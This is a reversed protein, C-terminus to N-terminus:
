LAVFTTLRTQITQRHMLLTERLSAAASNGWFAWKIRSSRNQMHYKNLFDQLDVRCEAIESALSDVSSESSISDKVKQVELLTGYFACIEKKLAQYDSSADNADYLAIGLKCLLTIVGQIDGLSGATLAFAVPMNPGSELQISVFHTQRSAPRFNRGLGGAPM